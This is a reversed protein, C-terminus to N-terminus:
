EKNLEAQWDEIRWHIGQARQGNALGFEFRNFVTVKMGSLNDLGDYEDFAIRGIDRILQECYDPQQNCSTKM